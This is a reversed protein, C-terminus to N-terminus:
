VYCRTHFISEQQVIEDKKVQVSRRVVLTLEGFATYEKDEINELPPMENKEIEDETLIESNDRLVM